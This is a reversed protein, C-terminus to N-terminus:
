IFRVDQFSSEIPLNIVFNFKDASLYGSIITATGRKSTLTGRITGDSSMVLDATSEEPGEPTNYSLKWKGTIDGQPPDKPRDPERIEFRRGDVFVMKIKTKENFLDGDAVVLNAIKGKEISGLRDAVGYIEAANATFARLAVDGPPGADIVKKANKLVEKPTSVGDRAM